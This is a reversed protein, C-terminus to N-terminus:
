IQFKFKIESEVLAINIVPPPILREWIFGQARPQLSARGGSFDRCNISNSNIYYAEYLGKDPSSLGGEESPRYTINIFTNFFRAYRATNGTLSFALISARLGRFLFVREDESHCVTCLSKQLGKESPCYRTTTISAYEFNGSTSNTFEQLHLPLQYIHFITHM